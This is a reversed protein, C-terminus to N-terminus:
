ALESLNSRYIGLAKERQKAGFHPAYKSRYSRVVEPSEMRPLPKGEHPGSKVIQGNTLRIYNQMKTQKTLPSKLYIPRWLVLDTSAVALFNETSNLGSHRPQWVENTTCLIRPRPGGSTAVARVPTTYTIRKQAGRGHTTM